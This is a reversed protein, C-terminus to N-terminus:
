RERVPVDVPTCGTRGSLVCDQDKRMHAMVEAIWLGAAILVVTVMLGLGNMVMRHRYDDPEDPASEYKQLDPVTPPRPVNRTLLSGRPRFPLVRSESESQNTHTVARGGTSPMIM